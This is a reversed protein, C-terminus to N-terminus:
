EDLDDMFDDIMDEIDEYDKDPDVILMNCLYRWTEEVIKTGEETFEKILMNSFSVALPIGLNNYEFFDKYEKEEAFEDVFQTIVHSKRKLEL